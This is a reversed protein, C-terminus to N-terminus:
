RTSNNKNKEQLNERKKAVIEVKESWDRMEQSVNIFATQESNLNNKKEPTITQWLIAKPNWIEELLKKEAFPKFFVSLYEYIVAFDPKGEIRGLKNYAHEVNSKKNFFGDFSYIEKERSSCIDCIEKVNIDVCHSLSYIDILDKVRYKYVLDSSAVHIKDALIENPLVGNISIEGFYYTTSGITPKMEIDLSVVKTGSSKDLLNIGASRKEGYERYQTAIYQNQLEGLASNIISVLKDMAPPTDIWDADIDITTRQVDNFNNEELILKTILGGKFILPVDSSSLKGMLEYMLKEQETM